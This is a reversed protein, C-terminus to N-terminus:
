VPLRNNKSDEFIRTRGLLDSSLPKRIFSLVKPVYSATPKSGAHSPTTQPNGEIIHVLVSDGTAFRRDHRVSPAM